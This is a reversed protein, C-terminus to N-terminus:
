KVIMLPLTLRESNTNLVIFYQGANLNTADFLFKNTGTSINGNYITILKNGLLDYLDITSSAIFKQAEVTIIGSYFIPTQSIKMTLTQSPNSVIERVSSGSDGKGRLYLYYVGANFANSFMGVRSIYESVTSPTFKIPFKVSDNPLVYIPFSLTTDIEFADDPNEDINIYVNNIKLQESGPNSVGIYGRTSKGIEVNGFDTTDVLASIIPGESAGPSKGILNLYVVPNKKANSVIKIKGIYNKGWDVPVFKVSFTTDEGGKVVIPTLMPKTFLFSGDTNLEFYLSDVVLDQLGSNSIKLDKIVSQGVNVTGFDYPEQQVVIEPETSVDKGGRGQLEVILEEGNSANSIIKLINTYEREETATFEVEITRIEMPLLTDNTIGKTIRFAEEEEEEEMREIVTQYIILNQKSFNQVKVSKKKPYDLPITGFSLSTTELKLWPNLKPMKELLWNLAGQMKNGFYVMENLAAVNPAISWMVLRGSGDLVSDAKLGVWYNPPITEVTDGVAGIQDIYDIGDSLKNNPKFKMIDVLGESRIPLEPDVNQRGWGINCYMTYGRFHIGSPVGKVRFPVYTNGMMFDYSGSSDSKLGLEYSLFDTVAPDAPTTHFAYTMMRRGIIMVNKNANLMEKIKDIVKIGGPTTAANLPFEGLPFIAVDFDTINYQSFTIDSFPVVVSHDLYPDATPYHRIHDLYALDFYNSVPLDIDMNNFIIINKGPIDLLKPQAQTKENTIFLKPENPASRTLEIANLYNSAMLIALFLLVTRKM